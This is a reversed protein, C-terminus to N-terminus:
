AARRHKETAAAIQRDREAADIQGYGFQQRIYALDRELPTESPGAPKGRPVASSPKPAGQRENRIWTRWTAQWDLKRGDKGPKAHWFDAFKEAQEAPDLDPRKGRAWVAWEPPLTWDAPLRTGNKPKEAPKPAPEAAPPADQEEEIVGGGVDGGLRSNGSIVPSEGHNKPNDTPPDPFKSKGNIRQGFDTMVIYPKSDVTYPAILGADICEALHKKISDEKVSDVKLPYCSSRILTLNGSYRGYDDAVSMLRRYFLEALPSLANVRESTLIGDRIIRTPM